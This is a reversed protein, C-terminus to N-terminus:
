VSGYCSGVAKSAAGSMLGGAKGPTDSKDLGLKKLGPLFKELHQRRFTRFVLEAADDKNRHTVTTLILGTLYAHYLTAVAQYARSWSPSAAGDDTM